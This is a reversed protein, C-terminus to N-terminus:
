KRRGSTPLRRLEISCVNSAYVYIVRVDSYVYHGYVRRFHIHFNRAHSHEQGRLLAQRSREAVACYLVGASCHPCTNLGHWWTLM